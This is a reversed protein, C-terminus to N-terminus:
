PRTLGSRTATLIRYYQWLLVGGFAAALVTVGALAYWGEPPITEVNFRLPAGAPPRPPPADPGRAVATLLGALFVGGAVTLVALATTAAYRGVRRAADPGCVEGLLRFWAFLVAFEAVTGIMWAVRGIAAIALATGSEAPNPGILWPGCMAAYGIARAPVAYRAAAVWGAAEVAAAAPECRRYGVWKLVSRASVLALDIAWVAVLVSRLDGGGVLVLGLATTLVVSEALVVVLGLTLLRLGSRAAAAAPAPIPPTDDPVSEVPHPRRPVRVYEGCRHCGVTAGADSSPARLGAGCEPCCFRVTARAADLM